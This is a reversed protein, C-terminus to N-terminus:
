EPRRPCRRFSVFGFATLVRSRPSGFGMKTIRFLPTVM